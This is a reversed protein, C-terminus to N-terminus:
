RGSVGEGEGNEKGGGRRGYERRNRGEKVM